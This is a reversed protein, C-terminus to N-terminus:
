ITLKLALTADQAKPGDAIKNMFYLVKFAWTKSPPCYIRAIEHVSDAGLRDIYNERLTKSVTDIGDEWNKFYFNGGNWGYANYSAAPLNKGFTSEVGSIAAVLRWDLNYEDAKQVMRGAYPALPSNHMTLYDALKDARTDKPTFVRVIPTGSAGAENASASASTERAFAGTPLLAVLMALAVVIAIQVFLSVHKM